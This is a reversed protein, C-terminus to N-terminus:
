EPLGAVAYHGEDDTFVTREQFPQGFHLTVMAGVIAGGESDAVRGQFGAANATLAALM